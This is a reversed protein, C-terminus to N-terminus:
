YRKEFRVIPQAHESRQVWYSSSGRDPALPLPRGGFVRKLLAAPTIVLYYALALIFQTMLVGIWHTVTLWGRHVPQLPGPISLFLLGLFALVGFFGFVIPKGRWFGAASMVGFVLLAIAGFKRTEKKETSSSTM